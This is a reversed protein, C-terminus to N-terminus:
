KKGQGTVFQFDSFLLRAMTEIQEVVFAGDHDAFPEWVVVTNDGEEILGLVEEYPLTEDYDALLYGLACREAYERMETETMTAM